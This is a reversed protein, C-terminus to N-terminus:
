PLKMFSDSRQARMPFSVMLGAVSNLSSFETGFSPKVNLHFSYSLVVESNLTYKLLEMSLQLQLTRSYM